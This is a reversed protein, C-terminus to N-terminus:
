SGGVLRAAASRTMRREIVRFWSDRVGLTSRLEIGALVASQGSRTTFRANRVRPSVGRGLIEIRTVPGGLGLARGLGSGTFSPPDPWSAHYPSERDLPDPVSVLYPRPPSGQFVNEVNETRGGSTSFFYTAVPEGQYTVLQGKTAAAAANSTAQEAAVGGYVQSSTNAYHDFGDGDKNTTLAYTRAAVAQAKLAEAPWTASVELPIVGRVYDDVDLANIVNVGGLSGSRFELAGRYSGDNRLFGSAGLVTIPGPGTVRLPAPATVIPKGRRTVLQVQGGARGRVSYTKAPSLKRGAAASAGRFSAAGRASQILVRVTRPAKLVGIATDTYYHGLIQTYTWGHEAYGLAGYQSMGVGHGFGAGRITFRKAAEAPAAACIAVALLALLISLNRTM